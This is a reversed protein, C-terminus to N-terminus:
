RGHFWDGCANCEIMFEQGDYPKKCICYPQLEKDDAFDEKSLAM